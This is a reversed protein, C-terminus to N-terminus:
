HASERGCTSVRVGSPLTTHAYSSKRRGPPMQRTDEDVTGGACGSVLADSTCSMCPVRGSVNTGCVCCSTTPQSAVGATM